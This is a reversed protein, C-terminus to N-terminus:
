FRSGNILISGGGLVGTASPQGIQADTAANQTGQIPASSPGTQAGTARPFGPLLRQITPAHGSPCLRPRMGLSRIAFKRRTACCVADYYALLEPGWCSVAQEAHHVAQRSGRSPLLGTQRARSPARRRVCGDM